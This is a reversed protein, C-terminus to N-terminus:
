VHRDFVIVHYNLALCPNKEDDLMPTFYIDLNGGGYYTNSVDWGVSDGLSFSEELGLAYYFESLPVRMENVVKKNIESEAELIRERSSFFYRGTVNDYVRVTGQPNVVHEPDFGKPPNSSVLERTSEDLIDKHAKEGFKEIVKDQYRNLTETSVSYAAVAAAQRDIHIKNAVLIFGASVGWVIAVPACLPALEKIETSYSNKLEERAKEKESIDEKIDDRIWSERDHVEKIAPAAKYTMYVSLGCGMFGLATCIAPSNDAVIKAGRAIIGNLTM